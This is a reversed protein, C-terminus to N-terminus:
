TTVLAKLQLESWQRKQRTLVEPNFVNRRERERTSPGWHLAKQLQRRWKNFNNDNHEKVVISPRPRVAAAAAVAARAIEETTQSLQTPIQGSRDQDSVDQREAMVYKM